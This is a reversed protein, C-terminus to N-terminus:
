RKKMVQTAVEPDRRTKVKLLIPMVPIPSAQLAGAFALMLLRGAFRVVRRWRIM